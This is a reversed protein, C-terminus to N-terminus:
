TRCFPDENFLYKDWKQIFLACEYKAFKKKKKTSDRGRTQCEYHYLEAYPTYVVNYGLKRVQMCLDIDNYTIEFQEDFKGIKNFLEMRIMICAGTVASLNRVYNAYIFSVPKKLYIHGSKHKDCYFGAHQIKDNGYLLKVGVIGVENRQALMLMEEIWNPSIVKTDNNLFILFEGQSFSVAYNNIKSYNFSDNYTIVKLKDTAFRKQISDYYEFTEKNKSNNEVIIIEFNSYTSKEFISEICDSLFDIKDKNPIIISVKHYTKINYQVRFTNATIGDFVRANLMSRQLHSILVQKENRHIEAMNIDISPNLKYILPKVINYINDINNKNQELFRLVIDYIIAENYEELRVYALVVKKVLCSNGIFNKSRISDIGFASKKVLTPKALFRPNKVVEDCYILEANTKKNIMRVHEALFSPLLICDRNLFLVYDGTIPPIVSDTSNGYKIFIKGLDYKSIINQIKEIRSSAIFIDKHIIIYVDWKEYTQKSLSRLLIDLSKNSMMNIFIIINIQPVYKYSIQKINLLGLKSLFSYLKSHKKNKSIM